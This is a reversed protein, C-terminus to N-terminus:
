FIKLSFFMWVVFQIYITFQGELTKDRAIKEYKPTSKTTSPCGINGPLQIMLNIWKMIKSFNCEKESIARCFVSWVLLFLRVFLGVLSYRRSLYFKINRYLLYPSIPWKCYYIWYLHFAMRTSLHDFLKNPVNVFM